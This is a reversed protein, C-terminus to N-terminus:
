RENSAVRQPGIQVDISDLSVFIAGSGPSKTVLLTASVPFVVPVQGNAVVVNLTKEFAGAAVENEEWIIEEKADGVIIDLRATSAATKVIHGKLQIKAVPLSVNYPQLVTFNGSFTSSGELKSGDATASLTDLKMSFHLAERQSDTSVSKPSIPSESSTVFEGMELSAMDACFSQANFGFLLIAGAYLLKRIM